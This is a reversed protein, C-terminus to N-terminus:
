FDVMSVVNLSNGEIGLHTTRLLCPISYTFHTWVISGWFITYLFSIFHLCICLCVWANWIGSLSTDALLGFNQYRWPLWNCTTCTSHRLLAPQDPSGQSTNGATGSTIKGSPEADAPESDVPPVPPSTNTHEVGAVPADKEDQEM